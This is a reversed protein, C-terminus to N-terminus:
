SLTHREDDERPPSAFAGALWGTALESLKALTGPEEFLHSAGPVIELQKPAGIRAFAERNRALAPEDAGGVLLLTPAQVSGLLEAALEPRGSRAVVARVAEPALAAARLAAAAGTGAGYYGIPLAGHPTQERLWHMAFLLRETLLTVDTRRQSSLREAHSEAPTLLDFLLTGVGARRLARAVLRDRESHRSSGRGHAFLVIGTAQEPVALEGELAASRAIPIQISFGHPDPTLGRATPRFPAM